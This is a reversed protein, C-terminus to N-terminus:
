GRMGRSSGEWRLTRSPGECNATCSPHLCEMAPVARLFRLATAPHCRAGSERGSQIFEFAKSEIIAHFIDFTRSDPARVVGYVLSKSHRPRLSVGVQSCCALCKSLRVMCSHLYETKGSMPTLTM